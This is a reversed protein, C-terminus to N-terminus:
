MIVAKNLLPCLVHDLGRLFVSIDDTVCTVCSTFGDLHQFLGKRETKASVELVM